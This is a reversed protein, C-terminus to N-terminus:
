KRGFFRSFFNKIVNRGTTKKATSTKKVRTKALANTVVRRGANRVSMAKFKYRNLKTIGTGTKKTTSTRRTTSTSKKVAPKRTGSTISAVAKRGRSVNNHTKNSSGSGSTRKSTNSVNNKLSLNTSKTNSKSSTQGVPHRKKSGLLENVKNQYVAWDGYKKTLAARRKSGSGYKGRIIEKAVKLIDKAEKVSKESAAEATNAKNKEVNSDLQTLTTKKSAKNKKKKVNLSFGGGPNFNDRAYARRRELESYKRRRKILQYLQTSSFKHEGWKMGKVGYHALHYDRWDNFGYYEM